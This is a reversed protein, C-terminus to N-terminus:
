MEVEKPEGKLERLKGYLGIMSLLFFLLAASSLLSDTVDGAYYLRPSSEPLLSWFLLSLLSAPLLTAAALALLTGAVRALNHRTLERSRKLAARFTKGECALVIPAFSTRLLFLVAPILLPTLLLLTFGTRGGVPADVAPNGRLLLVAVIAPVAFLLARYFTLCQQLLSTLLLPFVLPLADGRVRRFSSRSRGARSVVMRKGVLLVCSIGWLYVFTVVLVAAVLVVDIPQVAAPASPFGQEDWWRGFWSDALSPLFLFWGTITLLVPQKRLYTWTERLLPGPAFPNKSTM